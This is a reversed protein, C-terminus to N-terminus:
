KTTREFVLMFASTGGIDGVYRWGAAYLKVMTTKGNFGGSCEMEANAGVIYSSCATVETKAYAGIAMALSLGVLLLFKKM